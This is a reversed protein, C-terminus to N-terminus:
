HTYGLRSFSACRGDFVVGRANKYKKIDARNPDRTVTEHTVKKVKIDIIASASDLKADVYNKVKDAIINKLGM